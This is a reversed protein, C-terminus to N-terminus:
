SLLTGPESSMSPSKWYTPVATGWTSNVRLCCCPQTDRAEGGLPLPCAKREAKQEPSYKLWTLDNVGVRVLLCSVKLTWEIPPAVDFHNIKRPNKRFYNQFLFM